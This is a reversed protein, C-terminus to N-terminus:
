LKLEVEAMLAFYRCTRFVMQQRCVDQSSGEIVSRLLDWHNDWDVEQLFLLHCTKQSCWRSSWIWRNLKAGVYYILPFISETLAVWTGTMSKCLKLSKWWVAAQPARLCADVPSGLSVRSPVRRESNGDDCQECCHTWLHHYIWHWWIDDCVPLCSPM